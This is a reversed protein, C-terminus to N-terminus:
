RPQLVNLNRRAKRESMLAAVTPCLPEAARVCTPAGFVLNAIREMYDCVEGDPENMQALLHTYDRLPRGRLNAGTTAFLGWLCLQARCM